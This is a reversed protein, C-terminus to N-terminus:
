LALADGDQDGGSGEESRGECEAKRDVIGALRRCDQERQRDHQGRDLETGPAANPCGAQRHRQDADPVHGPLVVHGEEAVGSSGDGVQHQAAQQPTERRAQARRM